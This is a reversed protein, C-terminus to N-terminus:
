KKEEDNYNKSYWKKYMFYGAFADIAILAFGAVAYLKEGSVYAYNFCGAAAIILLMVLVAILYMMGAGKASNKIEM